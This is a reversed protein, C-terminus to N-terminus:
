VGQLRMDREEGDKMGLAGEQLPMGTWECVEAAVRWTKLSTEAGFVIRM